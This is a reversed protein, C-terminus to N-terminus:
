FSQILHSWQKCLSIKAKKFCLVPSFESFFLISLGMLFNGWGLIDVYTARSIALSITAASVKRM